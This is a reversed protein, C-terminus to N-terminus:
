AVSHTVQGTYTGSTVDDPLQVTVTGSWTVTNAGIVGTAVMVNTPADITYPPLPLVPPLALVVGTFGTLTSSYTVESAPITTDGNTFATSSAKAQWGALGLRQDTVKVGAIAGQAQDGTVNLTQTDTPAAITLFGGTVGFTLPTTVDAGAQGPAVLVFAFASAAAVSTILSKRM